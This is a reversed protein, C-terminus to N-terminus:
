INLHSFGRIEIEFNLDNKKLVATQQRFLLFNEFIKFNKWFEDFRSPQLKAFIIINLHSRQDYINKLDILKHGM